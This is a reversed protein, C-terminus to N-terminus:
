AVGCWILARVNDLCAFHWHQLGSLASGLYQYARKEGALCNQRKQGELNAFPIVNPRQVLMDALLLPYRHFSNM